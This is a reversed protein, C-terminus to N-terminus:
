KDNNNKKPKWLIAGIVSIFGAFSIMPALTIRRFSYIDPNFEVGSSEGLMLIFGIIILASGIGMFLLNQKRLPMEKQEKNEM